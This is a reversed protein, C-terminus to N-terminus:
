HLAAPPATLVESRLFDLAKGALWPLEFPSAVFAETETLVAVMYESEVLPGDSVPLPAIWVGETTETEERLGLDKFLAAVQELRTAIGRRWGLIYEESADIDSFSSLFTGVDVWGNLLFPPLKYAFLTTSPITMGAREWGITSGIYPM